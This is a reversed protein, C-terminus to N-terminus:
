IWWQGQSLDMQDITEVLFREFTGAPYIQQFDLPMMLTQNIECARERVDHIALGTVARLAPARGYSKARAM